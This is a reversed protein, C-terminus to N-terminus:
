SIEILLLVTASIVMFLRVIMSIKISRDTATSGLNITMAGVVGIAYLHALTEVDGVLSLVLIPIATSVLLPIIPVGHRNLIRLAAPLEKDVSMLFQVSILGNM